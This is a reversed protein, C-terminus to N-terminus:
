EALPNTWALGRFRAFDTDASCLEAGHEIALAALHADSVINGGTGLPEVLDRLVMLHRDGPHLVVAPPQSLWSDVLDLAQDPSLPSAFVRPNTTIRIFATLALWAFGITEGGGLASEIWRRASAHHASRDDTAYILLNADPLKV